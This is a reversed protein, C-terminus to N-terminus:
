IELEHRLWALALRWDRKVTIAAIGLVEAVEKVELGGFLRWEVV